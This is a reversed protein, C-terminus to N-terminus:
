LAGEGERKKTRRRGPSECTRATTRAKKKRERRPAQGCAFFRRKGARERKGSFFCFVGGRGRSTGSSRRIRFSLSLEWVIVDFFPLCGGGCGGGWSHQHKEGKRKKEPGNRRSTASRMFPETSGERAELGPLFPPPSLRGGERKKKGEQSRPSRGHKERRLRATRPPRPAAKRKKKETDSVVRGKEGKLLM